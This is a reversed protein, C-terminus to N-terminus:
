KLLFYISVIALFIGSINIRSLKENFALKGIIASLLVISINVLAFILSSNLNSKNLANIMFFLSGFNVLGLITGLILTPAHMFKNQKSKKNVFSIGTAIVFAVLFVFFSFIASESETIKEGQAFKLVSDTIGSGIFLSVPLLIFLLNTKKIDNKYITLIVAMIAMALGVYKLASITEHFYLISFLVPFVLSLKNALTTVTIGAKQSSNGILYFMIIFLTGLLVAYSFWPKPGSLLRINFNMFYGFGLLAAILYNITILTTINCSYNKALRFVVFISTSSM